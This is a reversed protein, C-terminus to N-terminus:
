QLSINEKTVWRISNFMHDKIQNIYDKDFDGEKYTFQFDFFKGDRILVIEEVYFTGFSYIRKYSFADAKEGDINYKNTTPTEILQYDANDAFSFELASVAEMRTLVELNNFPTKGHDQIKFDTGFIINEYQDRNPYAVFYDPTFARAEWKSPYELIIGLGEIVLSEYQITTSNSNTDSQNSNTITQLNELSSQVTIIM